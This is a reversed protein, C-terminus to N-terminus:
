PQRHLCKWLKRKTIVCKCVLVTRSHRQKSMTKDGCDMAPALPVFVNIAQTLSSCTWLLTGHALFNWITVFLAAGTLSHCINGWCSM